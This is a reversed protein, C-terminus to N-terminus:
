TTVSMIQCSFFNRKEVFKGGSIHYEPSEYSFCVRSKSDISCGCRKGRFYHKFRCSLSSVKVRLVGILLQSVSWLNRMKKWIIVGFAFQKCSCVKCTGVGVIQCSFCNWKEVFKGGTIHCDPSETFFRAPSKSENSCACRQSGWVYHNFRCSALLNANVRLVCKWSTLFV